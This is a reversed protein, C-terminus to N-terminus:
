GSILSFDAVKGMAERVQALLRLRNDREAPVPSNVLVKDFFADVPARLAALATLAAAFDEAVLAADVTPRAAALADFLATEPAPAGDGAGARSPPVPGKKEEAKLINAARKYGALLNAGDETTWSATWPRSGRWSACWTTTALPSSRM